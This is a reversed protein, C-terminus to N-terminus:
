PLCWRMVNMFRISENSDKMTNIEEQTINVDLEEKEGTFPIHAMDTQYLTVTFSKHYRTTVALRGYTVRCPIVHQLNKM